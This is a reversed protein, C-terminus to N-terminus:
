PEEMLIFHNETIEILGRTITFGNLCLSPDEQSKGLGAVCISTLEM